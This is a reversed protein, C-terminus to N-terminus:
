LVIEHIYQNREGQDLREQDFRLQTGIWLFGADISSLISFLTPSQSGTIELGHERKHLFM